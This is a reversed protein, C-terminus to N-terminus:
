SLSMLPKTELRLGPDQAIAFLHWNERLFPSLGTEKHSEGVHQLFAPSFNFLAIRKATVVVRKLSATLPFSSFDPSEARSCHWMNLLGATSVKLPRPPHFSETACRRFRGLNSVYSWRPSLGAGYTLLFRTILAMPCIRLGQVQEVLKWLVLWQPNPGLHFCLVLPSCFLPALFLFWVSEKPWSSHIEPDSGPVPPLVM